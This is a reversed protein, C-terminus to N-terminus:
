DPLCMYLSIRKCVSVFWLQEVRAFRVKNEAFLAHVKNDSHMERKELNEPKENNGQIEFNFRLYDFLLLYM